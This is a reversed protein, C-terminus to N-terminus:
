FEYFWGSPGMPDVSGRSRMPGWPGGEVKPGGLMGRSVM